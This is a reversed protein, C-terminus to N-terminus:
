KVKKIGVLITRPSELTWQSGQYDGFCHELQFGYKKFIKELQNCTFLRVSETYCKEEGNNKFHIDKIIRGNEIKRNEIVRIEPSLQSVSEPVLNSELEQANLFDLWYVGGPNLAEYVSRVVEENEEDTEFYGFSTFLSLILDFKGPIHRMDGVRLDLQPYKERGRTVLTESLDLGTVRYGKEDLLMTYRGEGCALDLIAADKSPNVTDIILQVQKKAESRNRHRYLILYNEDFWQQFWPTELKKQRM